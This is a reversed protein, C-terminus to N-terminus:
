IKRETANQTSYAFLYREFFDVLTVNNQYGAFNPINPSIESELFDEPGLAHETNILLKPRILRM